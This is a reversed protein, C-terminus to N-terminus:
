VWTDRILSIPFTSGELSAAAAFPRPRAFPGAALYFAFTALKGIMSV